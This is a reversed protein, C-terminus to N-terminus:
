QLGNIEDNTLTLVDAFETMGEITTIAERLPDGNAVNFLEEMVYTLQEQSRARTQRDPNIVVTQPPDAM